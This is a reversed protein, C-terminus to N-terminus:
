NKILGRKECLKISEQSNDIGITNSYGWNRFIELTRGTGCGIDLIKGDKAINKIDNDLVKKVERLSQKLLFNGVITYGNFGKWYNNWDRYMDDTKNRAPEKEMKSKM